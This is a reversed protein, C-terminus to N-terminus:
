EIKGTAWSNQLMNAGPCAQTLNPDTSIKVDGTVIKLLDALLDDNEGNTWFVDNHGFACYVVPGKKEFRQWICPFAPRDYCQNREQNKMGATQLTALVRMEPAFNKNAYWEDYARWSPKRKKLSPLSDDVVEITAEQQEGHTIFEGGMVKIYDTMDYYPDIKYGSNHRWTDTASHFGLLGVGNRIAEYMKKVGTESMPAQGDGGEKDLDGSTYFVFAKFQTLDGDFVRGDKTCVVEYGLEQGIKQLTKGAVNEGDENNKIPSHEFGQSRSFFLIKNPSTEQCFSQSSCFSFTAIVLLASTFFSKYTMVQAKKKSTSHKLTCNSTM